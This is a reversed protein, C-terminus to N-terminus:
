VVIGKDKLKSNRIAVRDVAMSSGDGKETAPKAVLIFQEVVKRGEEVLDYKFHLCKSGVQSVNKTEVKLWPSFLFKEPPIHPMDYLLLCFKDTHSFIGCFYCFTILSEYKFEVKEWDCKPRKVELKKKLPKSVDLRVRIKMYEGWTKSYNKPDSELYEGVHEGFDNAYKESIFGLPLNHVQVEAEVTICAVIISSTSLEM